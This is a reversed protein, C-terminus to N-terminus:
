IIGNAEKTKFAKTEPYFQYIFANPDDIWKDTVTNLAVTIYGGFITGWENKIVVIREAIDDTATHFNSPDFGSNRCCYMRELKISKKFQRSIFNYFSKGNNEDLISSKFSYNDNIKIDNDTIGLNCKFVEFNKVKFYVKDDNSSGGILDKAKTIKYREPKSFSSSNENCNNSIEIDNSFEILKSRNVYFAHYGDSTKVPFIKTKVPSFQFLFANPDNIWKGSASNCSVSTYGGFVTDFENKIVILREKVDDTENHYSTADFGQSLGSYVRELLVSRGIKDTITDVFSQINSSDFIDTALKKTENGFNYDVENIDSIEAEFLELDKVKFYVKDDTSSGGCLDSGKNLSYREPKCFSSSNNNPENSIEIDNSFEVLKNTNKYFAHYGNQQKTRFVKKNPYFQFLFASPDDIWRETTSNLSKSIYGGFITDWENKIIVVRKSIDDTKNHFTSAQFGDNSCSYVRKLKVQAGRFEKKILKLFVEKNSNQAIINSKFITDDNSDNNKNDNDSTKGDTDVQFVELDLVKYNVQNENSSGGVLDKGKTITFREPKSFSNSNQDCDGCIEIDNSFEVLKDLNKYFSHYGNAERTKFIKKNPHFQFLFANPDDIWKGTVSNLAVTIYGGFITGFENKIVVIRKSIDDTKNHFKTPSFGDAFGSYVLKFKINENNLQTSIQSIFQGKNTSDFINSEFTINNNSLRQTLGSETYNGAMNIKFVEIDKVKFYAKTDSSVGGILEKAKDFKYRLPKAFSDSNNNCEGCIEIDDSFEILKSRNVYFAHYGDATKVPFIKRLPKFQFLFADPDNIWKGTASNVSKSIYGGFITDYENKVVIIRESVDDTKNHFTEPIFGDMLGSYVRELHVIKNLKKSILHIFQEKNNQTIINTNFAIDIVVDNLPREIQEEIEISFLEIDKVNFYVKQDVSVGGCLDAGKSLTFREPKCFSDSNNNCNNSIEIDNSFEIIKNVNKYFAHHGDPQKPDFIKRDPYFQFLFATPDNFWKDPINDCSESIYGGFVTDWENKVIVVRKAISDTREHYKQAEFGHRLGSWVRRLKLNMALKNSLLDVFESKLKPHIINSYYQTSANNDKSDDKSENNNNINNSNNNSSNQDFNVKFVEVDIVKFNVKKNNSKSGVLEKPQNLQYTQAKAFSDWNNNCDNLIQIDEGFEILKNRDVSLAHFGDSSKIRFIKSDPKWQFLFASSDNIWKGSAGNLQQWMNLSQSVYGGFIIDYENKIVIVREQIDDTKTHFTSATFGDNKGSYVRELYIKPKNIQKGILISFKERENKDILRSKYPGGDDKEDNINNDNKSDNISDNNNNNNNNGSASTAGNNSEIFTISFVEINKVKFYAKKDNSNGGVLEKGKNFKYRMPEAFSRTNNNCEGCIELDNSFEILKSRNVYFAHFGDTTNTEFIKRLPKFQFLFANPDNIWKGSASNLSKSVYGGFITDYENKILIIRESIDDTKSHYVNPTFGDKIGSYIRKLTLTKNLKNSLINIFEKKGDNNLIQSKFDIHRRGNNSSSNGM